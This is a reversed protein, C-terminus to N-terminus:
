TLNGQKETVDTGLSTEIGSLTDKDECHIAHFSILRRERQDM